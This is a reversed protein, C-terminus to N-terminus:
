KDTLWRDISFKGGGKAMLFVCMAFLLIHYEFGEGRGQESYWNMYFGWRLHVFWVAGIMITAMVTSMLRTGLGVLLLIPGFFEGIIVLATIWGPFGFWKGWMEITWGPGHGGFWALMKQAGHAFMVLAVVIRIMSTTWESDTKCLNLITSKM